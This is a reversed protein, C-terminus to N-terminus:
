THYYRLFRVSTTKLLNTHRTWAVISACWVHRLPLGCSEIKCFDLYKARVRHLRTFAVADHVLCWRRAFLLHPLKTAYSELTPSRPWTLHLHPMWIVDHHCLPACHRLRVRLSLLLEPSSFILPWVRRWGRTSRM